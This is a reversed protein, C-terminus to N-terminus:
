IKIKLNDLEHRSITPPMINNSLKKIVLKAVKEADNKTAIGKNGPMGPVSPQRIFIRNGEFVDYGYGNQENGTITYRFSNKKYTGAAHTAKASKPSDKNQKYLVASVSFVILLVPLLKVQVFLRLIVYLILLFKRKM